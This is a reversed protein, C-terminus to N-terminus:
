HHVLKNNQGRPGGNAFWETTQLQKYDCVRKMSLFHFASNKHADNFM